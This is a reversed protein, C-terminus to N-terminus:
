YDILWSPHFEPHDRYRQVRQRLTWWLGETFGATFKDDSGRDSREALGIIARDAAIEIFVRAPHHHTMHRADIELMGGEHSHQRDGVLAIRFGGTTLEGPVGDEADDGVGELVWPGPSAVQAVREDEDLRAQFFAILDDM